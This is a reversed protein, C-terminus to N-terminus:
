TARGPDRARRDRRRGRAPAHRARLGRAALPDRDLLRRLAGRRGGRGPAGDHRRLRVRRRRHAARARARAELREIVGASRSACRRRASLALLAWFLPDEFLANYFLSHVVIAVLGLGFALRARETATTAATARPVPVSFCSRSCGASSRSGRCGRRPPSRSRRTTRPPPKTSRAPRRRRLRRRLRGRRGRRAPPPRLPRPRALRAARPRGDSALARRPRPHPPPAAARGPQRRALAAAAVALPALARRRWLVVLGAVIAPRRARRLEVALVLAGARGDDGGRGRGGVWALPGAGFLVLVLSAVIAVVLFRGYISPDYFISNVRYFWSVPAYANDVKVKPNWYINRTLYQWVGILPSRRAGDARAARLAGEGLALRWPLRALRSARAAGLPLVYFLLDVAGAHRGVGDGADSWLLAVGYWAVFLALPWAFPGLERSRPEGRCLQWALALAAAAVVVYLPLLLNAKAGGVEGLRSVPIRAPACALVAVALAWPVRVFLWALLVAAVCGSSRRPPSCGTTAPPRSRSRSCRRLRAGLRRARRARPERTPGLISCARARARRALAGLSSRPRGERQRGRARRRTARRRQRLPPLPRPAAPRAPAAVHSRASGRRGAFLWSLARPASSCASASAARASAVHIRARRADLYRVRRRRRGRGAELPQRGADQVAIELTYAGPAAGAPRDITGRWTSRRRQPPQRYTLAVRHGDAFLVGHGPASLTYPVRVAQPQASPARARAAPASRAPARVVRPPTTDLLIPNPLTITPPRRAAPRGPVYDGDPLVAGTPADRGNFVLRVPGSRTAAGPSSRARGARRRRAGDLGRAARRARLKFVIDRSGSPASTRTAPRRSSRTSRRGTSRASSPRRARPSRSRRRRRRSSRWASHPPSCGAWPASSEVRGDRARDPALAAARALASLGPARRSRAPSSRGGACGAPSSTPRAAPASAPSPPSCRWRPSSRASRWGSRAPASPTPSRPPARARRARRHERRAAAALGRAAGRRVAAPRARLLALCALCFRRGLTLGVLSSSRSCRWCGGGAPPSARRLSLSASSRRTSARRARTSSTRPRPLPRRARASVLGRHVMGAAVTTTADGRRDPHVRRDRPQPRLSRRRAARRAAAQRGGLDNLALERPAPVSTSRTCTSSRSSSRSSRARARAHHAQGRPARGALLPRESM